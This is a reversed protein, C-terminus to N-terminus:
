RDILLYPSLDKRSKPQRQSMREKIYKLPLMVIVVATLGGRPPTRTAFLHCVWRLRYCGM